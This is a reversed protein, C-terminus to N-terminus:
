GRFRCAPSTTRQLLVINVTVSLYYGAGHQHPRVVHRVPDPQIHREDRGGDVVAAVMQGEQRGRLEM